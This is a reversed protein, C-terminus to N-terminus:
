EHGENANVQRIFAAIKEADKIGKASEVGSSVDVAAPYLKRIGAGVNEANLGGALVVPKAINDPVLEWDFCKGSGGCAAGAPTDLLLASARQYRQATAALDVGNGVAVAKIYARGWGECAAPEEDGHFQLLHIPIAELVQRIYAPEADVFLAVLSLFPPLDCIIEGAQEISVARPSPPYFVLGIADAGLNAAAMADSRRTIGCIKIGTRRQPAKTAKMKKLGLAAIERCFSPLSDSGNPLPFGPSPMNM